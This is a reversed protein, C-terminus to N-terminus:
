SCTLNESSASGSNANFESAVQEQLQDQQQDQQENMEQDEAM